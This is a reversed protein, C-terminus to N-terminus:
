ENVPQRPLLGLSRRVDPERAVLINYQKLIRIYSCPWGLVKENCQSIVASQVREKYKSQALLTFSDIDIAKAQAETLEPTLATWGGHNEIYILARDNSDDGEHVLAPNVFGASVFRESIVDGRLKSQEDILLWGIAIASSLGAIILAPRIFHRM